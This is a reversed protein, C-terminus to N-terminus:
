SKGRCLVVGGSKLPKHGRAVYDCLLSSCANHVVLEQKLNTRAVQQLLLKAFDGSRQDEDNQSLPVMLILHSSM